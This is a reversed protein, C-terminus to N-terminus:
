LEFDLIAYVPYHDSVFTHGHWSNRDVAFKSCSAFGRYFVHDFRYGKDTSSFDNFTPGNDRQPATYRANKFSQYLANFLTNDDEQNWDATLVVPLSGCRAAVFSLLIPMEAMRAEKNTDLHTNIHYFEKGSKIHVAKIWTATRYHNTSSLRSMEGPTETLWIMGWDRVSVSDKLYFIATQEGDASNDCSLGLVEYGPCNKKLYDRQSKELEQVGMMVPHITNIMDCCADRRNVWNNEDLTEKASGYRVNFSMVMISPKYGSEEPMDKGKGKHCSLLSAVLMFLTIFYSYRRM